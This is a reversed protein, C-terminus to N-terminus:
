EVGGDFGCGHEVLHSDVRGDGAPHWVEEGAELVVCELDPLLVTDLLDAEPVRGM